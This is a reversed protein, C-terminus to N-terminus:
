MQGTVWRLLLAWVGRIALVVGAALLLAFLVIAVFGGFMAAVFLQPSV